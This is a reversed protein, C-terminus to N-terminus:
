EARDAFDNLCVYLERDLLNSVLPELWAHRAMALLRNGTIRCHSFLRYNNRNYLKFRARPWDWVMGLTSRLPQLCAARWDSDPGRYDLSEYEEKGSPQTWVDWEDRGWSEGLLAPGLGSHPGFPDGRNRRVWVYM